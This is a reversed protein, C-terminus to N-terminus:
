FGTLWKVVGRARQKHAPVQDNKAGLKERWHHTTIKNAKMDVATVNFGEVVKGDPRTVKRAKVFTANLVGKRMSLYVDRDGHRILDLASQNYDAQISLGLQGHHKRFHGQSVKVHPWQATKARKILKGIEKRSLVERDRVSQRLHGIGSIARANATHMGTVTM